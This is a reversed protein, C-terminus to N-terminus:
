FRARSLPLTASLPRPRVGAVLIFRLAMAQSRSLPPGDHRLPCDSKTCGEALYAHYCPVGEMALFFQPLPPSHSPPLDALGPCPPPATPTLVSLRVDYAGLAEADTTDLQVRHKVLWAKRDVGVLHM